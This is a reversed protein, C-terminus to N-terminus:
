ELRSDIPHEVFDRLLALVAERGFFSFEQELRAFTILFSTLSSSSLIMGSNSNLQRSHSCVKSTRTGPWAVLSMEHGSHVPKLTLLSM